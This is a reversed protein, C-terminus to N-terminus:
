HEYLVDEDALTTKYAAKICNVNGREMGAPAYWPYSNNDTSAMNRVVDKTVPLNLYRSNSSDYYMVWPAYTCAYSSNIETDSFEEALETADMDSPSTMIYLADGGRGDDTDEIVDIAEETLLTNNYWDIGPTAFLNIEVDQPNAFVRYGALFAYYDSTIATSPLDLPANLGNYDIVNSFVSSGSVNYKSSKYEDGTTRQERNVDWGDFGGYFYVTFKRTNIDKYLTQNIYAANILRPIYRDATVKVDSVPKFSYGPMGDVYTNESNVDNLAADMHFGDNLNAPNADGGNSYWARGKYAFVDSDVGTIDSLGFYQKKAKLEPIYEINYSMQVKASTSYDPMPYGMFGAPISNSLDEAEAMEVTIYKSKAEYGGDSSGIKFAIYGTDGEVLNCRTFRELVIPAADTDNFDRVFVDFTGEDPKINQISIKVQYNSANGDSITIFKFLKKMSASKTKDEEEKVVADSVIWPTQAPRYGEFFDNYVNKPNDSADVNVNVSFVTIGSASYFVEGDSIQNKTISTAGEKETKTLSDENVEVISYVFGTDSPIADDESIYYKIEERTDSATIATLTSASSWSFSNEYVAEIYVPTTGTDPRNSLVKYIYNSSGPTLNVNYTYASNYGPVGSNCTVTLSFYGPESIKKGDDDTEECVSNYIKEEYEGIEISKVVPTPADPVPKCIEGSGAKYSMKSRLVVIPARENGEEKIVWCPGADYGSLGLVRVVNLRKSEQLYSKAIYPLEYKPLGTGKFKEPSTGGFYDVFDGWNEIEVNQFAPGYLTEGVLGLSTIGLSKVSYTVDREETYIGPSVHSGRADSIM